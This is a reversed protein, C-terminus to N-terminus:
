EPHKWNRIVEGTSSKQQLRETIKQNYELKEDVFKQIKELTKKKIKMDAIV